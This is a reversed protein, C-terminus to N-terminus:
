EGTGTDRIMKLVSLLSEDGLMEDEWYELAVDRYRIANARSPDALFTEAILDLSLSLRKEARKTPM